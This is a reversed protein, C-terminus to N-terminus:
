EKINPSSSLAANLTITPRLPYKIEGEDGEITMEQGNGELHSWLLERVGKSVM